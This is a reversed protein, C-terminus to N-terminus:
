HFLLFYVEGANLVFHYFFGYVPCIPPTGYFINRADLHEDAPSKKYIKDTRNEYSGLIEINKKTLCVAQAPENPHIVESGFDIITDYKLERLLVNWLVEKKGGPLFTAIRDLWRWLRDFPCIVHENENVDDLLEYLESDSINYKEPFTDIIYEYDNEFDMVDYEQVVVTQYNPNKLKFIIAYKTDDVYPLRSIDDHVHYFYRVSALPYSYIGIPTHHKTSPNIGLKQVDVMSVFYYKLKEKPLSDIMKNIADIAYIRPNLEPNKRAELINYEKFKYM